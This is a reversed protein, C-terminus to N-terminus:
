KEIKLRKNLKIEINRSITTKGAGPTGLILINPLIM